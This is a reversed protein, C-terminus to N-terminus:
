NNSVSLEIAGIVITGGSKLVAPIKKELVRGGATSGNTSGLDEIWVKGENKFLRAHCRSVSQDNLHLDCSQADRGIVLGDRDLKPNDHSFALRVLHGNEDFGAMLWRSSSAPDVLLTNDRDGQFSYTVEVQLSEAGVKGYVVVTGALKDHLGQKKETLGVMIYGVYLVLGSLFKSVNRRIARSFSIRYGNLDTVRLGLLRKGPTAQWRSSEFFSFYFPYIIFSFISQAILGLGDVNEGGFSIFFLVLVLPPALVLLDVVAAWFRIWFGAYRM